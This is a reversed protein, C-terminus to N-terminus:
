RPVEVSVITGAGPASEVVLQGGQDGVLDTLARLGFHGRRSSRLAEHPEFGHGNDRVSLRVSDAAESIVIGVQTAGAHRLANRLAEQAVRYLLQEHEPELRLEDPIELDTELGDRRAASLLDSLSAGLGQQALSPPYIDVLLTRLQRVGERLQEASAHLTERTQSAGDGNVQGELAALSFSVGALTQVVGDHLDSAVRRREAQQADLSRELSRLRDHEARRVRAALTWALPVQLLALLVLAGLLVPLFRSWLRRQSASIASYRQYTEFLLREGGPARVGLYVELLKGFGREFRNEPRSVDSVEAAIGGRHLATLEDDGLVFSRGILAHEDSYAIRGSPEWIKVRVVPDHLVQRRILRDMRAIADPRGARLGPTIAPAILGDGIVRTVERAERLAEDRGVRQSVAVAGFGILFLVLLGSLAFRAVAFRTSRPAGRWRGFAARTRGTEATSRERVGHGDSDLWPSPPLEAGATRVLPDTAGDRGRGRDHM